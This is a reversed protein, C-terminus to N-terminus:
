EPNGGTTRPLKGLEVRGGYRIIPRKLPFIEMVIKTYLEPRQPNPTEKMSIVEVYTPEEQGYPMDLNFGWFLFDNPDSPIYEPDKVQMHWVPSALYNPDSNSPYGPTGTNPDVTIFNGKIQVIMPYPSCPDSYTDGWYMSRSGPQQYFTYSPEKLLVFMIASAQSALLIVILAILKTRKM